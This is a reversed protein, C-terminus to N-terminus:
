IPQLPLRKQGKGHIQESAIIPTKVNKLKMSQWKAVIQITPRLYIGMRM